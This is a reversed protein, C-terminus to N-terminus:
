QGLYFVLRLDLLHHSLSSEISISRLLTTKIPRNSYYYYGTVTFVIYTKLTKRFKGGLSLSPESQSLRRM